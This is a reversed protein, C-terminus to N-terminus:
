ARSPARAARGGALRRDDELRERGGVEFRDDLVHLLDHAAGALVVPVVTSGGVVLEAVAPHDERSGSKSSRTTPTLATERRARPRRSRRACGTRRTRRRPRARCRREVPDVVVLAAGEVREHGGAALLLAVGLALQAQLGLDAGLQRDLGLELAPEREPADRDSRVGAGLRRAARRGARGRSLGPDARRRHVRAAAEAFSLDPPPLIVDSGELEDDALAHATPAARARAASEFLEHFREEDGAEVAAVVENDLENLARRREDPLEYQGETAIRVIM